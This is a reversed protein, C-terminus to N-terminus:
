VFGWSLNLCISSSLDLAASYNNQGEAGTIKWLNILLKSDQVRVNLLM